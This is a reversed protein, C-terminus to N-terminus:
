KASHPKKRIIDITHHSAGVLDQRECTALHYEVWKAFTEKDMSDVLERLYNTAGDAAVLKIREVPVAKDLEAIEETRILEFIESPESICHWDDTVMGNELTKKLNDRMFVYQIITPENMCYAVLIYGGPRTVRVAESLALIQDEKTYLHYMPGLLLTLDFSDDGLFSLDKANGQIVNINETGNLKGKLVEINHEILEVATVSYGEKALTVSYRGTGAGIELIHAAHNDGLCDHIYKQTTIYEVQGHQLLLRGDEDYSNYFSDLFDMPAEGKLAIIHSYITHHPLFTLLYHRTLPM